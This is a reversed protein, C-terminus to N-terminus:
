IGQDAVGLQPADTYEPNIACWQIGVNRYVSGTGLHEDHNVCDFDASRLCTDGDFQATAVASYFRRAITRVALRPPGSRQREGARRHHSSIRITRDASEGATRM